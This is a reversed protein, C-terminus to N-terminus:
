PLKITIKATDQVSYCLGDGFFVVQPTSEAFNKLFPSSEIGCTTLKVVLSIQQKETRTILSIDVSSQDVFIGYKYLAPMSSGLVKVVSNVNADNQNLSYSSVANYGTDLLLNVFYVYRHDIVVTLDHRTGTLVQTSVYKPISISRFPYSNNHLADLVYPVSVKVSTPKVKYEYNLNNDSLYKSVWKESSKGDLSQLMVYSENYTPITINQGLLPADLTVFTSNFAHQAYLKHPASQTFAPIACSTIFVILCAILLVSLMKFFNAARHLLPLLALVSFATVASILAAIVLDQPIALSVRNM